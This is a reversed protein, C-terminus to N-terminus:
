NSGGHKAFRCQKQLPVFLFGNKEDSNKKGDIKWISFFFLVGQAIKCMKLGNREKLRGTVAPPPARELVQPPFFLIVIMIQSIPPARLLDLTLERKARTLDAEPNDLLSWPSPQRHHTPHNWDLFELKWSSGDARTDPRRVATRSDPVSGEPRSVASPKIM